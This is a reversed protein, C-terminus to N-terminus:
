KKKELLSNPPVNKKNNLGYPIMLLNNKSLPPKLNLFCKPLPM